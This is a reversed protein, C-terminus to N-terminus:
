PKESNKAPSCVRRSAVIINWAAAKAQDHGVIKAWKEVYEHAYIEFELLIKAREDARIRSEDPLSRPSFMRLSKEFTMGWM